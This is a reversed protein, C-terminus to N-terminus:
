RRRGAADPRTAARSASTVRGVLGIEGDTDIYGLDGTRLWGDRLTEDTLRPARHYGRMVVAGRCVIEGRDGTRLTRGSPDAIAVVLGPHPVGLTDPKRFVAGHRASLIGAGTEARGYTQILEAGAFRDILGRKLTLPLYPDRILVKRVSRVARRSPAPLEALGAVVDSALSVDTVRHQEIREVVMAPGGSGLLAVAGGSILRALVESIFAAVDFARHTALAVDDPGDNRAISLRLASAVVNTHTLVAARLARDPGSVYAHFAIDNVGSARRSRSSTGAQRRTALAVVRGGPSRGAGRERPAAGPRGAPILRLGRSVLLAAALGSARLAAETRELHEEHAVVADVRSHALMRGLDAPSLQADLPVSTAGARWTALTTSVAGPTDSMVQAVVSGPAVVAGLAEARAAIIDAFRGLLM